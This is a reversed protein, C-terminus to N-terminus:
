LTMESGSGKGTMPQICNTKKPIKWDLIVSLHHLSYIFYLDAFKIGCYRLKGVASLSTTNKLYYDGRGSM